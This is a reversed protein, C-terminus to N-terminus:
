PSFFLNVPVMVQQKMKITMTMNYNLKQKAM